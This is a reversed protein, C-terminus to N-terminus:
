NEKNGACFALSKDSLYTHCFDKKLDYFHRFSGCKDFSIPSSLIIPKNHIKNKAHSKNVITKAIMPAMTFSLRFSTNPNRIIPAIMIKRITTAIKYLLPASM